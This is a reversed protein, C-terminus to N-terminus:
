KGAASPHGTKGSPPEPVGKYGGPTVQAPVTIVQQLAPQSSSPSAIAKVVEASSGLLAAVAGMVAAVKKWTETSSTQKQAVVPWVNVMAGVARDYADRLGGPGTVLYSDCAIVMKWASDMLILRLAPDLSSDDMLTRHLAIIKATIEQLHTACIVPQRMALHLAESCFELSTMDGDNYKGAVQGILVTGGPHFLLCGIANGVNPVWRLLREKSQQTALRAVETRTLSPLRLMEGVAHGVIEPEPTIGLIEPIADRLGANPTPFHKIRHLIAYLRGAPNDLYTEDM